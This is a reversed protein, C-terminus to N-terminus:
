SRGAFPVWRGAVVSAEVWQNDSCATRCRDAFWAAPGPEVLQPSPPSDMRGRSHRAPCRDDDRLHQTRSLISSFRSRPLASGHSRRRDPLVTHTSSVALLCSSPGRTPTLLLVLRVTEVLGGPRCARRDTVGTEAVSPSRRAAHDRNAVTVHATYDDITVPDFDDAHERIFAILQRCCDAAQRTEGRQEHVMGLRATLIQLVEFRGVLLM